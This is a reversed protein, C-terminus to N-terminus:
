EDILVPTVNASWAGVRLRTKIRKRWLATEVASIWGGREYVELL